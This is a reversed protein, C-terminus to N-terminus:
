TTSHDSAQLAHGPNVRSLTPRLSYGDGLGRNAAWKRVGVRKLGRNLTIDDQEARSSGAWPTLPGPRFQVPMLRSSVQASSKANPPSHQLQLM